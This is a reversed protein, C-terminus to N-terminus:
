SGGVYLRVRSALAWGIVLVATAIPPLGRDSPVFVALGSAVVLFLAAAAADVRRENPALRRARHPRLAHLLREAARDFRNRPIRAQAGPAAATRMGRTM